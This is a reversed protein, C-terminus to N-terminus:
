IKEAKNLMTSFARYIYICGANVFCKFYQMQKFSITDQLMLWRLFINEKLFCGGVETLFSDKFIQAIYAM